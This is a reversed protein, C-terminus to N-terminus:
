CLVTLKLEVLKSNSKESILYVTVVFLRPTCTSFSSWNHPFDEERLMELAEITKSDSIDGDTDYKSESVKSVNSSACIPKPKIPKLVRTETNKFM